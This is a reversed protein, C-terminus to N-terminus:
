KNTAKATKNVVKTKKPLVARIEQKHDKVAIATGIALGTALGVACVIGFTKWFM